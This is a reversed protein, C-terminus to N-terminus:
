DAQFPSEESDRTLWDKETAKVEHHRPVQLEGFEWLVLVADSLETGDEQEKRLVGPDLCLAAGCRCKAWLFSPSCCGTPTSSSLM